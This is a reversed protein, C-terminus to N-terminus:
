ILGKEQALWKPLTVKIAQGSMAARPEWEIQSKPLYIVPSVRAKHAIGIAARTERIFFVTVDVLNSRVSDNGRVDASDNDGFRGRERKGEEFREFTDTFRDDRRRTM